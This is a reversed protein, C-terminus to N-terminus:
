YISASLGQLAPLGFTCLSGNGQETRELRSLPLGWQCAYCRGVAPASLRARGWSDARVRKMQELAGECTTRVGMKTAQIRAHNLDGQGRVFLGERHEGQECAFGSWCGEQFTKLVPSRQLV